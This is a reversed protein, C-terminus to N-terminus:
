SHTSSAGMLVRHMERISEASLDSSLELASVLANTNAAIEEANRAGKGGLEATFIQRASATLNEIQSSSAAESRLLIPGYDALLDGFESDFRHLEAEAGGALLDTERDVM